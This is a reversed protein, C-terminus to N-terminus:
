MHIYIYRSEPIDHYQDEHISNNPFKLHDKKLLKYINTYVKYIDYM